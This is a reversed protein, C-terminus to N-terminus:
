EKESESHIELVLNELPWLLDTGPNRQHTRSLELTLHNFPKLYPTLNVSISTSNREIQLHVENLLVTISFEEPSFTQAINAKLLVSDKELLGTPCHFSRLFRCQLENSSDRKWQSQLRIRHM